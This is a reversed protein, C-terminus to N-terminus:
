NQWIPVNSIMFKLKICECKKMIHTKTLFNREVELECLYEGVNEEILNIFKSKSNLVETQSGDKQAM